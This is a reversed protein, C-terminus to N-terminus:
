VQREACRQLWAEVGLAIILCGLRTFSQGLDSLSQKALDPQHSRHWVALSVRDRRHSVLTRVKKRLSFGHGQTIHSVNVAGWLAIM